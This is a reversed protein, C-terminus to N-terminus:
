IPPVPSPRLPLAKTRRVFTTARGLPPPSLIGSPQPIPSSIHLITLNPKESKTKRHNPTAFHRPSSIQLIAVSPPGEKESKARTHRPREPREPRGSVLQIDLKGSFPQLKEPRGSFPQIKEPRGSGLQLREPRGSLPPHKEPRGSAPPMLGLIQGPRGDGVGTRLGSRENEKGEEEKTLHSLIKGFARKSKKSARDHAASFLARIGEDGERRQVKLTLNPADGHTPSFRSRLATGYYEDSYGSPPDSLASTAWHSSVTPDEDDERNEAYSNFIDWQLHDDLQLPVPNGRPRPM